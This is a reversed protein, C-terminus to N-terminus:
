AQLGALPLIHGAFDLDEGELLEPLAERFDRRKCWDRMYDEWSQWLRRRQKDMDEEYVLIYAREFLAVLIGFIAQKRERQEASLEAHVGERSLLQLDANDIVLKLFSNYEDSLRQHIVEEEAQREKRQELAFVYIALPLGVITVVYSLLEAWELFTEPM